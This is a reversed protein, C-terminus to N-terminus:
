ETRRIHAWDLYKSLWDSYCASFPILQTKGTAMSVKDNFLHVAEYRPANQVPVMAPPSTKTAEVIFEEGDINVQVWAHGGAHGNYLNGMVCYVEDENLDRRLLSTLLFAKNACNGYGTRITLSPDCWLDNQRFTKNEVRLTGSIFQKYKVQNAVWDWCYSIKDPMNVLDRTIFDHLEMVELNNPTIFETLWKSEGFFTASIPQDDIVTTM